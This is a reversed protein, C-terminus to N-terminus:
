CVEESEFVAEEYCEPCYVDNGFPQGCTSCVVRGCDPCNWWDDTLIVAGCIECKEM